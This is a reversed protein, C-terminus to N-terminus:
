LIVKNNRLKSIKDENFQLLDNLVYNAHQNLKPPEMIDGLITNDSYNLPNRILKIDEKYNQSKITQILNLDQLQQNNQSFIQDISNVMGCPIKQENLKQILEQCKWSKLYNEIIEGMKERNKVRQKNTIFDESKYIEEPIGVIQCFNKFQSDTGLALVAYQGDGCMYTAYPVISPHQNGMRQHAKNGNLYQSAINVLSALATEYLSTYVHCGKGTKERNYLAALLGTTSYLGALVDTIAFGLKSPQGNQEGTIFMYGAEAQMVLDFAHYNQKPGTHGYGTITSYIIDNKVKKLNEYDIQLRKTVGNSFNEIVIDSQKALEYIIEQGEKKKLNLCMSKKNRNVSMFYSSDLKQSKTANSNELFPPGWKRTEDGEFGEIKIVEAGLDSLQMSCIPGVLIRSLDLVRIGKLVGKNVKFIQYQPSMPVNNSHSQGRKITQKMNLNINKMNFYKTSQYTQSWIGSGDIKKKNKMRQMSKYVRVLYSLNKLPFFIKFNKQQDFKNIFDQHLEEKAIRILDQVNVSESYGTKQLKDQVLKMVDDEFKTSQVTNLANSAMKKMSKMGNDLVQQTSKQVSKQISRQSRIPVQIRTRKAATQRIVQQNNNNNNNSQLKQVSPNQKLLSKRSELQQVTQNSNNMKQNLNKEPQNQGAGQGLLMLQKSSLMYPNKTESLRKQSEKLMNSKNKMNSKLETYSQQQYQHILQKQDNESETNSDQKQRLYDIVSKRQKPQNQASENSIDMNNIYIKTQYNQKLISQQINENNENMIQNKNYNAVTTKLKQLTIKEQESQKRSRLSKKQSNKRKQKKISSMDGGMLLVAKQFDESGQSESYDSSNGSDYYSDGKYNESDGEEISSNKTQIKNLLKIKKEKKELNQQEQMNKNSNIDSISQEMQLNCIEDAFKLNKMSKPSLNNESHSQILQKAKEKMIEEKQLESEEGEEQEDNYDEEWDEYYYYEDDDSDFYDYKQFLDMIEDNLFLKERVIELEDFLENLPKIVLNKARYFRQRQQQREQYNQKMNVSYNSPRYCILNCKNEQHTTKGCIYCNRIYYNSYSSFMIEEKIMHFREFDESNNKLIQLFKNREIKCLNVFSTCKASYAHLQGTILNMDGLVQGSKVQCIVTEKQFEDVKQTIEVLNKYKFNQILFYDIYNYNIKRYNQLNKYFSSGQGKIILYLSPEINEDQHFIYENTVCTQEEMILLVDDQTKKSFQQWMFPFQKIINENIQTQIQDKMSRPLKELVQQAEKNITTEGQAKFNYELYSRVKSQLQIEIFKSEMFRNIIELDRKYETAKQNLEELIM